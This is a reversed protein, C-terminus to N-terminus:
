THAATDAHSAAHIELFDYGCAVVRQVAAVWDRKFQEIDELTLARPVYWGEDWPLASPAVVDNPWGNM